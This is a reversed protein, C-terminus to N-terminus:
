INFNNSSFPRIAQYIIISYSTNDKQLDKIKLFSKLIIFKDSHFFYNRKNLTLILVLLFINIRYILEQYNSTFFIFIPM